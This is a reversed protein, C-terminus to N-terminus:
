WCTAQYAQSRRQIEPDDLLNAPLLAFGVRHGVKWVWARATSSRGLCQAPSLAGWSCASGGAGGFRRGRELLLVREAGSDVAGCAAALGALGGGVVIVGADQSLSAGPTVRGFHM